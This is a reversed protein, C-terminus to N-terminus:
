NREAVSECGVRFDGIAEVLQTVALREVESLHPNWVDMLLIVRVDTSRNWAEHEFTDDFVFVEGERWVRPPEGIVHLACDAPIMLPLHAVVRTNTVGRHPLIRAGPRLISFLIEPGHDRIKVRPIHDLQLATVPCSGCNEDFKEGHRYFFVADWTGDQDGGSVLRSLEGPEHFPQLGQRKALVGLMERRIADTQAELEAIWPFLDRSFFPTTPLDPFYLFKPRQRSDPYEAAIEGLYIALCRTVRRMEATGYQDILPELVAQYLQRRGLDICQFARAVRPYLSEPITQRNLWAGRQQALTVSRFYALLAGESDKLEEMVEALSLAAFYNGPDLQLARQLARKADPLMDASGFAVGLNMWVASNEPEIEIARKCMSLARTIDGNAFARSAFYKVAELQEFGSELLQAYLADADAFRGVRASDRARELLSNVSM